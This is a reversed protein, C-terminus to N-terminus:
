SQEEKLGGRTWSDLLSPDCIFFASHFLMSVPTYGHEALLRCERTTSITSITAGLMELVLVRPRFTQWDNSNIALWESGEIDISMFDLQSWDSPVAAELIQALPRAQVTIGKATRGTVGDVHQRRRDQTTNLASESYSFLEVAGESDSVCEEVVIDRPRSRAFSQKTGPAGDVVVGSWGQRYAWYSNSFRYPHHAGVDVYHGTKQGLFLRELLIDEGEQSYHTAAFPRWSGVYRGLRAAAQLSRKTTLSDSLGEHRHPAWSRDPELPSPGVATSGSLTPM